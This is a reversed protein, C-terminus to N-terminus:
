IIVILSRNFKTAGEKKYRMFGVSIGLGVIGVM